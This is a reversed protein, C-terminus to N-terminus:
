GLCCPRCGRAGMWMEFIAGNVVQCGGLVLQEEHQRDVGTQRQAVNLKQFPDPANAVGAAPSRGCMRHLLEAALEDLVGVFGVCGRWPAARRSDSASPRPGHVNSQGYKTAKLDVAWSYRLKRHRNHVAFPESPLISKPPLQAVRSGLSRSRAPPPRGYDHQGWCAVTRNDRVGCERWPASDGDPVVGRVAIAWIFGGGVVVLGVAGHGPTLAWKGVGVM